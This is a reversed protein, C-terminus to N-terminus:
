KRECAYRGRGSARMDKVRAMKKKDQANFSGQLTKEVQKFDSKPMRRMWSLLLSRTREDEQAKVVIKDLLPSREDPCQRYLERLVLEYSKYDAGALLESVQKSSVQLRGSRFQNELCPAFLEARSGQLVKACLTELWGRQGGEAGPRSPGRRFMTRILLDREAPKIDSSDLFTELEQYIEDPSVEGSRALVAKVRIAIAPDTHNKNKKLYSLYPKADVRTLIELFRSSMVEDNLPDVSVLIKAANENKSRSLFQLAEMRETEEGQLMEALPGQSGGGKMAFVAVAGLILGVVFAIGSKVTSDM